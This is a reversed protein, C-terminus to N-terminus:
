KFLIDIELLHSVVQNAPCDLISSVVDNLKTLHNANHYLSNLRLKLYEM